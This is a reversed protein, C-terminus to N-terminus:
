AFWEGATDNEVAEALATLCVKPHEIIIRDKWAAGDGDLWSEFAAREDDMFGKAWGFYIPSQIQDAFVTLVEALADLNLRPLGNSAAGICHAFPHNGGATVAAILLSPSVDTYHLTQNAGGELEALGHLLTAVRKQRQDLPLRYAKEDELHELGMEDAKKRRVEDLNLFGTRQEYSFTGAASLNLSFLGKLVTRYFQHEYIVPGRKEEQTGADQKESETTSPKGKMHRTMSGFDETPTTPALSVLTSVRLPSVRTVTTTVETLTIGERSTEADTSKGAARMYGLLDDDWYTMPEGDTYAVKRERWIPSDQWQPFKRELTSRLWYRVAQASVYPFAGQRTRILKVAVLNDTRGGEQAGANNLASAPADILMLGTIFSM